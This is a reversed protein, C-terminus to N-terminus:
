SPSFWGPVESCMAHQPGPRPPSGGPLGRRPSVTAWISSPSGVLLARRASPSCGTHWALFSAPTASPCTPLPTPCRFKRVLDLPTEQAESHEPVCPNLVPCFCVGIERPVLMFGLALSWARGPRPLQCATMTLAEQDCCLSFRM